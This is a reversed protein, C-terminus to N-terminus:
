NVQVLVGDVFLLTSVTVGTIHGEGDYLVENLVTMSTNVGGLNIDQTGDRIADIKQELRRIRALSSEEDALKKGTAPM